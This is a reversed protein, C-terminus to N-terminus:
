SSASVTKKLFDEGTDPHIISIRVQENPNLQEISEIVSPVLIAKECLKLFQTTVLNRDPEAEYVAKMQAGLKAAETWSFLQRSFNYFRWAAIEHADNLIQTHKLEAATLASLELLGNWPYCGLDFMVIPDPKVSDQFEKVALVILKTLSATWNTQDEQQM